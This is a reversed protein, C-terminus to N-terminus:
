NERISVYSHDTEFGNKKSSICTHVLRLWEELQMWVGSRHLENFFFANLLIQRLYSHRTDANSAPVSFTKNKKKSIKLPFIFIPLLKKNKKQTKNETKNKTRFRRRFQEISFQYIQGNREQFTHTHTHNQTATNNNQDLPM